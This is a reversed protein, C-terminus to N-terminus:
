VHTRSTLHDALRQLPRTIAWALGAALVSAPWALGPATHGNLWLCAYAAAGYLLWIVSEVLLAATKM